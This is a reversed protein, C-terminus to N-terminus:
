GRGLPDPEVLGTRERRKQFWGNLLLCGLILAIGLYSGLSLREEEGWILLAILITYVPELNVTLMVTFPSLQRMVLIGTVFSFSTCVLGLILHYIIDSTPLEWLPPPLDGVVWLGVGMVLAVSAMEYFGIRVVNDRQVLVANIINFWASLFASLVGVAIGLRYESEIGFILLLAAIVVTGLVVEYVRIRRKFWFPELLATFVTSTSLCAAAISATSIKIAGYFTIWHAAILLGTLLYNILGPARLSISRKMWVAAFGLGVAAIVTRTYVLHLTGQQILKGLIGTFGWIFVTLHLLLLANRRAHM